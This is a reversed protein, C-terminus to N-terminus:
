GVLRAALADWSLHSMDGRFAPKALSAELAKALRQEFASLDAEVPTDVDQMAPLAVYSVPAGTANANLWSRAGELDSMVVNCGCALAEITVLPLGEYFSPLAFVKARRYEQAVQTPSMKGVLQVDHRSEQALRAAQDWEDQNGAGGVLRVTLRGVSEPLLDLARILSFVGKKFAIKGVYVVDTPRAQGFCPAFVDADYGTGIIGVKSPPMGFLELIAQRQQGQLAFVGDLRRIGDVIYDRELGHQRLQRLCTSHCIAVVTREPVVNRVLATVLYLHNCVILDPQLEDVAQRVAKAFAAKFQEVMAPTMDRYRTSEYPMEDSMGCVAFPLQETRFRVAHVAVGGPLQPDDAADVGCVVAQKHGQRDLAAVLQSLYVGSGTSDPKQATVHLIRMVGRRKGSDVLTSFRAAM